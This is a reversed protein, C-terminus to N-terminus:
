RYLTVPGSIGTVADSYSGTLQRGDKSIELILRGTTGVITNYAVNVSQGSLSGQGVATVGYVVNMEQLAIMNGSQQITYSIGGAAQWIGSINSLEYNPQAPPVATEMRTETQSLERKLEEQRKALEAKPISQINEEPALKRELEAEILGPIKIKKITSEPYLLYLGFIVILTGLIAFWLFKKLTWKGSAREEEAM